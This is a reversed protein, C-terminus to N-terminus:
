QICKLFWIKKKVNSIRYISNLKVSSFFPHFRSIWNFSLLLSNAVEAGSYVGHALDGLIEWKNWFRTSYFFIFIFLWNNAIILHLKSQCYTMSKFPYTASINISKTYCSLCLHSLQLVFTAFLKDHRQYRASNIQLQFEPPTNLLVLM